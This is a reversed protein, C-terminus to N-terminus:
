KNRSSNKFKLFKCEEFDSEECIGDIFKLGFRCSWSEEGKRFVVISMRFCIFIRYGWFFILDFGVLLFYFKGLFVM